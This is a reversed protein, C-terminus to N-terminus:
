HTREIRLPPNLREASQLPRICLPRSIPYGPIKSTRQPRTLPRSHRQFTETEVTLVVIVVLVFGLMILIEKLLDYRQTPIGRPLSGIAYEYEILTVYSVTPLTEPPLPNM